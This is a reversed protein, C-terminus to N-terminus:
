IIDVDSTEVDANDKIDDDDEIIQDWSVEDGTDRNGYANELTVELQEMEKEIDAAVVVERFILDNHYLCKLCQLAEVIDAKLRSRQKSITIGV